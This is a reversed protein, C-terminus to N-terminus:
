TREAEKRVVTTGLEAVVMARLTQIGRYQLGRVSAESRGMRAATEARSLGQVVRLELVQRQDDPLRELLGALWMRDLLRRGPEADDDPVLWAEELPTLVGASRRRRWRDRILNLAAARLYAPTPAAAGQRGLVRACVEQTLDEAEERNQVRGYIFRYIAGWHRRYADAAANPAPSPEANPM